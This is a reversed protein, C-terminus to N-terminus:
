GAPDREGVVPGATVKASITAPESTRLIRRAEGAENTTASDGDIFEGATSEFNVQVGAEPAGSTTVRAVLEVEGGGDPVSPTSADLTLARDVTPVEPETLNDVFQEVANCGISTIALLLGAALSLPRSCRLNPAKSIM